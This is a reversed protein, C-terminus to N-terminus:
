FLDTAVLCYIFHAVCSLSCARFYFPEPLLRFVIGADSNAEKGVVDYTKLFIIFHPSHGFENYEYFIGPSIRFQLDLPYKVIGCAWM